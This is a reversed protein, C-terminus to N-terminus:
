ILTINTGTNNIYIIKGNTISSILHLFNIEYSTLGPNISDSRIDSIKIARNLLLSYAIKLRFYNSGHLELYKNKNLKQSNKIEEPKNNLDKSTIIIEKNNNNSNKM